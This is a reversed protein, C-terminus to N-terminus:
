KPLNDIPTHQRDSQTWHGRVVKVPYDLPWTFRKGSERGHSSNPFIEYPEVRVVRAELM